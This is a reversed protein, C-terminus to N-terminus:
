QFGKDASMRSVIQGFSRADEKVEFGMFKGVELIENAKDVVNSSEMFSCSSGNAKIHVKEVWTDLQDNDM